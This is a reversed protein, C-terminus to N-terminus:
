VQLPGDAARAFHRQPDGLPASVVFSHLDLWSKEITEETILGPRLREYTPYISEDYWAQGRERSEWFDVAHVVDGLCYAITALRGPVPEELQGSEEVLKRFVDLKIEAAESSCAAIKGAPVYSFPKAEVEDSVLMRELRYEDRALDMPHGSSVMENQAEPASFSMFGELMTASDSFVTAVCFHDDRWTTFHLLVGRPQESRAAVRRM